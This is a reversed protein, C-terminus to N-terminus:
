QIFHPHLDNISHTLISVKLAAQVVELKDWEKKSLQFDAYCKDRLDPVKDSANALLVFQDVGQWDCILLCYPVILM